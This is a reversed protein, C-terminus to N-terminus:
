NTNYAVRIITCASTKNTNYTIMNYQWYHVHVKRLLHSLGSIRYWISEIQSKIDTLLIEKYDHKPLQEVTEKMKNYVAKRKNQWNNCNNMPRFCTCRFSSQLVISSSKCMTFVLIETIENALMKKLQCIGRLLCSM